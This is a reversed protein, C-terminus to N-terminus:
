PSLLNRDNGEHRRMQFLLVLVFLIWFNLWHVVWYTVMILCHIVVAATLSIPVFLLAALVALPSRWAFGAVVAVPLFAIVYATIWLWAAPWSTVILSWTDGALGALVPLGVYGDYLGRLNVRWAGHPGWIEALALQATLGSSLLVFAEILGGAVIALELFPPVRYLGRDDVLRLGLWCAATLLAPVVLIAVVTELVVLMSSLWDM